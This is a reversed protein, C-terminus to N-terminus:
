AQIKEPMPELDAGNGLVEPQGGNSYNIHEECEFEPSPGFFGDMKQFVAQESEKEKFGESMMDM